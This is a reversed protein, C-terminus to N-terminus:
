YARTLVYDVLDHLFQTEGTVGELAAHCVRAMGEAVVKAGELQYIRVSTLKNAQKDKGVSKGMVAADGSEDLIDDTFQFLMGLNKGFQELPLYNKNNALISVIVIPALILKVTKKEYVSLVDAESVDEGAKEFQMDAVQGALMGTVGTCENLYKTSVIQKEGKYCEDLCISYATNLLADGALVAIAEGFKKHNSPKGRRFDDNDLAPLDDHVLSHTHVMEIALAFPLVDAFPVNLIEAVALALVPRIRKGGQMLSYQMSEGLISPQTNLKECYSKAYEEFVTLYRQYADKFAYM